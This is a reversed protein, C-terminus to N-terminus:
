LHNHVLDPATVYFFVPKFVTYAPSFFQWGYVPASVLDGLNNYFPNKPEEEVASMNFFSTPPAIFFPNRGDEPVVPFDQWWAAM